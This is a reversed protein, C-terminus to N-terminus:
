SPGGCVWKRTSSFWFCRSGPRSLGFSLSAEGNNAEGGDYSIIIRENDNGFFYYVNKLRGLSPEYYIGSPPTGKLIEHLSDPYSGREGATRELLQTVPELISAGTRATESYQLRNACGQVSMLFTVVLIAVGSSQRKRSLNM